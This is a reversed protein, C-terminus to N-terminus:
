QASQRLAAVAQEVDALLFRRHKGIQLSPLRGDRAYQHVTKVPLGLLRAVFRADRLPERELGLPLRRGEGAM